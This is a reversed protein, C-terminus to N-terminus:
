SEKKLELIAQAINGNFKKLADNAQEQTCNTQEMVMKIDEESTLTETSIDGSIQFSKKGQMDIEVIQPSSIIIREGETEIIVRNANIQKSNIGMQKMIREMQKPDMNPLM